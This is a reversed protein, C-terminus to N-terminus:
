QAAWEAGPRALPVAFARQRCQPRVRRPTCPACPAQSSGTLWITLVLGAPAPAPKSTARARRLRGALKQLMPAAAQHVPAAATSPDRPHTPDWASNVVTTFLDNVLLTLM